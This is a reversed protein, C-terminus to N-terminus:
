IRMQRRYESPTVGTIRGFLRTFSAQDGYGIRECIEGVSLASAELYEKAKSIRVAQLWKGPTVDLEIKFRRALTKPTLAFGRAMSDLNVQDVGLEEVLRDLRLQFESKPGLSFETEYPSQLQRVPPSVLLKRAQRTDAEYGMDVLVATLLDMASYVGGSTYINKHRAIIRASDWKVQPFLRKAETGAWWSVTARKNDLLGAKAMLLSASCTGAIVAGDRIARRIIRKAFDIEEDLEREVDLLKLSHGALLVLLDIKDPDLKAVPFRIGSRTIAKQHKSIFKVNFHHRGRVANLTLFLECVFAGVSAYFNEPLYVVVNM